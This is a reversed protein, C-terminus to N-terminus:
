RGNSIRAKMPVFVPPAPISSLCGVDVKLADDDSAADMFKFIVDGGCAQSLVGHGANTVVLHRATAGLAKAVREGNIPPTAPDRGGSLLLVPRNTAAIRHFEAPPTGKPWDACVAAYAERLDGPSAERRGVTTPEESCIVAYHMGLAIDSEGRGATAALLGFLGQWRGDVAEDIAQPLGAAMSPAYLPLRPLAAAMAPTIRVTEAVGTWPNEVRVTIPLHEFSQRWREALKPHRLACEKSAACEEFVRQLAGVTSASLSEPLSIEPPVIGDLVARRVHHPYLRLYELGARTGYSAGFLNIHEHGLASRVADLDAMAITTTFQRLDGYPLRTLEARCREMRAPQRAPDIADILPLRKEDECTLPASLGTGRQDVFVLDRRNNLRQLLGLMAPLADIASQGPGGVLIYVPDERKGRAIAPAIAFHIDIQTGAPVQPNLARTISGCLVADTLRPLHCHELAPVASAAATMTSLIAGLLVRALSALPPHCSIPM